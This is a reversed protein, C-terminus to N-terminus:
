KAGGAAPGSRWYLQEINWLTYPELVAPQFNALDKKAGVLLNPSVLAVLPQNEALIEQVRDFLAKRAAFKPTVMQKRMLRDIEAEWATAPQKQGPNWLHNGGSSLWVAMDPNPDADPSALSLVCAEFEHTRQVRELLSRFELPVVNVKIGVQRLDEQILAAMQQREPNNNSTLISFEVAHGAGDLLSGDGGWKFGGASLLKRAQELSRRPAPLHADAWLRNGPPVPGALPTAKGQYVLRVIADRDISANVAQRFAKQKLVSQHAVLSAASGAPLEALNFVLFSYEMSAGADVLNFGRRESEKQLAAFNRAGLRNILDSEGAQFRLVQNDETGAFLFTVESLYPLQVGARDVKWYYPNKELTVRQGPLYEKLRFPGLGVIESPATSLPWAEALRGQKWAAELKHRPLIFVGDFLRDPVSYPQPLDFVVTHMGTKRVGIPKGELLLLDRQPSNVKEDMVAQFTFIVDDADFPHGDSFRLGRRLELTWHLGDPSAKWSKALAPETALTQRNIHILDAMTRQLVERSGSDSAVAWNLTKPETRQASILRGGARGPTGTVLMRDDAFAHLQWVLVLAWAAQSFVRLLPKM